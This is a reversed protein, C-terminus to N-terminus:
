MTANKTKTIPVTPTVPFAKTMYANKQYADILNEKHFPHNKNNETIEISNSHQIDRNFTALPGFSSTFMHLFGGQFGFALLWLTRFARNAIDGKSGGRSSM